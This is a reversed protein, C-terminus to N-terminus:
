PKWEKRYDEHNAYPLALVELMQDAVSGHHGWEGEIAGDMSEVEPLIEDLLRRKMALDALLADGRVEFVSPQEGDGPAVILAGHRTAAIRRATLEEADWQARLFAILDKM